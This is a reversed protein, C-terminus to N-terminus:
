CSEAAPRRVTPGHSSSPRANDWAGIMALYRQRKEALTDFASREATGNVATFIPEVDRKM